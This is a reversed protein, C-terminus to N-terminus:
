LCLSRVGTGLVQTVMLTHHQERSMKASPLYLCFAETPNTAWGLRDGNSFEMSYLSWTEFCTPPIQPCFDLTTKQGGSAHVWMYVHMQTSVPAQVILVRSFILRNLYFNVRLNVSFNRIEQPICVEHVLDTEPCHLPNLPELVECALTSLESKNWLTDRTVPVPEIYVEVQLTSTAFELGLPVSLSMTSITSSLTPGTWVRQRRRM